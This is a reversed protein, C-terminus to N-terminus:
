LIGGKDGIQTWVYILGAPTPPAAPFRVWLTHGSGLDIPPAIAQAQSTWLYYQGSDFDGRDYAVEVDFLCKILTWGSVSLPVPDGGSAPITINYVRGM